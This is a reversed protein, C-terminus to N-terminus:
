LILLNPVVLHTLVVLVPNRESKGLHRLELVQSFLQKVPVIKALSSITM